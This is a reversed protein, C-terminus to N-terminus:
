ERYLFPIEIFPNAAEYVGGNLTTEFNLSCRWDRGVEWPGNIDKSDM